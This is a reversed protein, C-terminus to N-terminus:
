RGLKALEDCVLGHLPAVYHLERVDLRFSRSQPQGNPDIAIRWLGRCIRKVVLQPLESLALLLCKDGGKAIASM